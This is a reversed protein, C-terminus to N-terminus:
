KCITLGRQQVLYLPLWALIFYFGYNRLSPSAWRGSRGRGIIKRVPILPERTRGADPLGRVVAFWPVLWMASALGFVIFM